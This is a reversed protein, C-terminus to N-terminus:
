GPSDTTSRRKDRPARRTAIPGGTLRAHDSVMRLARLTSVDSSSSARPEAMDRDIAVNRSAHTAARALTSTTPASGATRAGTM